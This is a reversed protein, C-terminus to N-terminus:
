ALPQTGKSKDVTQAPSKFSNRYEDYKEPRFVPTSEPQAPAPRPRSAAAAAAAEVAKRGAEMEAATQDLLRQSVPAPPPPPPLPQNAEALQKVFDHVRDDAEADDRMEREQRATMEVVQAHTQVKPAPPDAFNVNGNQEPM